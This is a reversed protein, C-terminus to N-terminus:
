NAIRRPHSARITALAALVRESATLPSCPLAKGATIHAPAPHEYGSYLLLPAAPASHHVAYAWRAIADDHTRIGSIVVLDPARARLLDGLAEVGLVSVALTAIGARRCLLELLRARIVEPELMERFAIGILISGSASPGAFAIGRRIWTMAWEASFAWRASRVGHIAAVQDLAAVLSLPSGAIADDRAHAIASSISLGSRLADRLSAIEGRRFQRHGGESRTPQPFGFRREWARLTNPSVNLLRAAEATRLYAM